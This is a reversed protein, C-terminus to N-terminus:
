FKYRLGVLLEHTTVDKSTIGAETPAPDGFGANGLDVYRYSLDMLWNPMIAYNLGAGAAWTFEADTQTYNKKVGTALITGDTDTTNIAVGMGGGVFPTIKNWTGIDWYLNAMVSHSNLDSDSKVPVAANTFSPNPSYNLATRYMYELDTRLPLNKWNYGAVAGVAFVVESEDRVNVTARNAVNTTNEMNDANLFSAGGKIGLYDPLPDQAKAAGSVLFATAGAGVILLSRFM